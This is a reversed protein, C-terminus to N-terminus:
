KAKREQAKGKASQRKDKPMGNPATKGSKQKSGLMEDIVRWAM